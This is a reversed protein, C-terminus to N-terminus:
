RDGPEELLARAASDVDVACHGGSLPRWYVRWGHARADRSFREAGAYAGYADYLGVSLYIWPAGPPAANQVRANPSFAQWEADDAFYDTALSRLSLVLKPEAGTRAMVARATELDVFPSADYLPPCLAAVGEFRDPLSLGLALANVGGMSEGFVLRGRPAGTQAEVAPLVRDRFTELLGSRSARGQRALLWVPGFSVSVVIPPTAGWEAWRAQIMSTYYTDDNWARADLNRGHLHYAVRGDTGQPARYICFTFGGPDDTCTAAAPVYAVRQDGQPRMHERWLLWAALALALVVSLIIRARRSHRRTPLPSPLM